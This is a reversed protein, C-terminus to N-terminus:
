ADGDASALRPNRRVFSVLLAAGSGAVLAGTALVLAEPPGELVAVAAAVGLAWAAYALCRRTQFLLGTLALPLILVLAPLVHEWLSDEGDSPLFLFGLAVIPSMTAITIARSKGDLWGLHAEDPVVRGIRPEVLARRLGDWACPLFVVTACAWVLNLGLHIMAGLLLLSSGALLDAIGDSTWVRHLRRDISGIGRRAPTSSRVM